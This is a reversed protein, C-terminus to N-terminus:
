ARTTVEPIREILGTASRLGCIGCLFDARGDPLTGFYAAWQDRPHACPAPTEPEMRLQGSILELSTTVRDMYRLMETEYDTM